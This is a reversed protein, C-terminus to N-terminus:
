RFLYDYFSKNAQHNIAIRKKLTRRRRRVRVPSISPSSPSRTGVCGRRWPSDVADTMRLPRKPIAGALPLSLGELQEQLVDVSGELEDDVDLDGPEEEDAVSSLNDEAVLAIPCEPISPLSANHDLETDSELDRESVYDSDIDTDPNSSIDVDTM